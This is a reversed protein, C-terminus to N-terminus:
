NRALDQCAVKRVVTHWGQFRFLPDSHCPALAIPIITYDLRRATGTLPLAPHLFLLLLASPDTGTDTSLSRPTFSRVLLTWVQVLCLLRGCYEMLISVMANHQPEPESFHRRSIARM